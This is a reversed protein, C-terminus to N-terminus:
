LLGLSLGSCSLRRVMPKTLEFFEIFNFRNELCFSSMMAACIGYKMWKLKSEKDKEENEIKQRLLLPNQSNQYNNFNPGSGDM